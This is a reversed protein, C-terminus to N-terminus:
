QETYYCADDFGILWGRGTYGSLHAYVGMPFRKQLGDNRYSAAISVAELFLDPHEAQNIRPVDPLVFGADREAM